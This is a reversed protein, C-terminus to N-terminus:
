FRTCQDIEENTQANQVCRLMSDTIRKGPCQQLDDKMEARITQERKTIELPDTVHIARLQVEVFRNFILDCDAPTARRGCSTTAVALAVLLLLVLNDRATRMVGSASRRTLAGYSAWM